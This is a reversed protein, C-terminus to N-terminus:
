VKSGMWLFRFVSFVPLASPQLDSVAPPFSLQYYVSVSMASFKDQLLLVFAGM